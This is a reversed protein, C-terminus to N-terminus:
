VHEVFDPVSPRIRGPHKFGSVDDHTLIVEMGIAGRYVSLFLDRYPDRPIFGQPDAIVPLHAVPPFQGYGLTDRVTRKPFFTQEEVKVTPVTRIHGAEQVIGDESKHDGVPFVEKRGSIKQADFGQKIAPFIVGKIKGGFEFAKDLDGFIYVFERWSV